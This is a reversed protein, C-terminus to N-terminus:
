VVNRMKTRFEGLTMDDPQEVGEILFQVKRDEPNSQWGEFGPKDVAHWVETCGELFEAKLHLVKDNVKM